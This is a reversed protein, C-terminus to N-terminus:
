KILVDMTTIAVITEGDSSSKSFGFRKLNGNHYIWLKQIVKRNEEYQWLNMEM